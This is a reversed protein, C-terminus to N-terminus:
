PTHSNYTDAWSALVDRSDTDSLALSDIRRMKTEYHAVITPDDHFVTTTDTEIYALPRTPPTFTLLTAPCALAPHFPAIMPILRVSIGTPAYMSTLHRLQDRMVVRDGVLSQVAAEHIYLVTDPRTTSHLIEQRIARDQVLVRDGTLAHTYDGTQVLDPITLPHYTTITLAAQENQRLATLTDPATGHHRLFSGTDLETAITLIRDRAPKDAGLRGTLVAIEWPSTGRSGTELKSLKGLSWGLADATDSASKRARHRIRRLEEGLERSRATTNRSTTTQQDTEM